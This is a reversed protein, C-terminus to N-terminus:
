DCQLDEVFRTERRIEGAPVHLQESVIRVLRRWALNNSPTRGDDAPGTFHTDVISRVMLRITECDAPPYNAAFAYSLVKMWLFGFSLAALLWLLLQGVSSATMVAFMVGVVTLLCGALEVPQGENIHTSANRSVLPPLHFGTRKSLSQWHEKRGQRPLLDDLRSYMRVASRPTNFLKMLGGRLENFVRLSPCGSLHFMALKLQVLEFLHGVTRIKAMEDAEFHVGFDDEVDMVLEVYDLGM